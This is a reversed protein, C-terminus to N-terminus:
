FRKKAQPSFVSEVLAAESSLFPVLVPTMLLTLAPTLVWVSAESPPLNSRIGSVTASLSFLSSDSNEREPAPLPPRVRVTDSGSSKSDLVDALEM